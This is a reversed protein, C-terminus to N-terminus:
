FALVTQMMPVWGNMGATYPTFAGSYPAKYVRMLEGTLWLRETPLFYWKFCRGSRSGETPQGVPRARATCLCFGCAIDGPDV